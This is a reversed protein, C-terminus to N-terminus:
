RQQDSKIGFGGGMMEQEARSIGIKQAVNRWQSVTKKVEDTIIEM